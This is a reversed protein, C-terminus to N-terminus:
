DNYRPFTSTKTLTRRKQIINDSRNVQSARPRQIGPLPPPEKPASAVLSRIESAIESSSKSRLVGDKQYEKVEPPLIIDIEEEADTSDIEGQKSRSSKPDSQVSQSRTIKKVNNVELLMDLVQRAKEHSMQGDYNEDESSSADGTPLFTEDEPIQLNDSDKDLLPKELESEDKLHHSRRITKKLKKREGKVIRALRHRMIEPLGLAEARAKEIDQYADDEASRLEEYIVLEEYTENGISKDGDVGLESENQIRFQHDGLKDPATSNLEMCNIADQFNSSLGDSDEIITSDIYIEEVEMPDSRMQPSEDYIEEIKELQKLLKLRHMRIVKPHSHINSPKQPVDPKCTQQRHIIIDDYFDEFYGMQANQMATVDDDDDAPTTSNPTSTQPFQNDKNSIVPTNTHNNINKGLHQIHTPKPLLKPKHLSTKQMRHIVIDDYMDELNPRFKPRTNFDQRGPELNLVRSSLASDLTTHSVRLPPLSGSSPCKHSSPNVEQGYAVHDSDLMSTTRPHVRPSALQLGDTHDEPIYPRKAVEGYIVDPVRTFTAPNRRETSQAAQLGQPEDDLEYESSEQPLEPGISDDVATVVVIPPPAAENRQPVLDNHNESINNCDNLHISSQVKTALPPSAM